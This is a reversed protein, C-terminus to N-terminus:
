KDKLIIFYKDEQKVITCNPWIKNKIAWHGATWWNDFGDSHEEYMKDQWNMM